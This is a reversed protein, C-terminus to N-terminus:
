IWYSSNRNHSDISTQRYPETCGRAFCRSQCGTGEASLLYSTQVVENNHSSQIEVEGESKKVEGKGKWKLKLPKGLAQGLATLVLLNSSM